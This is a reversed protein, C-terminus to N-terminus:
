MDFKICCCIINLFYQLHESYYEKKSLAMVKAKFLCEEERLTIFTEPNTEKLNYNTKGSM